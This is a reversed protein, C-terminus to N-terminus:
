HLLLTREKEERAAIGTEIKYDGIEDGIRVAISPLAGCVLEDLSHKLTTRLKFLVRSSPTERANEWTSVSSKTVGLAFGLQEQTLGGATRAERLRDAFRKM